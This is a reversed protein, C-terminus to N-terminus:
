RSNRDLNRPPNPSPLAPTSTSTSTSPVIAKAELAHDHLTEVM